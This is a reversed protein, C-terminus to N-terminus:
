NDMGDKVWEYVHMSEAYCREVDIWGCQKYGRVGLPSEAELDIMKM